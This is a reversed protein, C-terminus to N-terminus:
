AVQAWSSGAPGQIARELYFRDEDTLEGGYWSPSVHRAQYPYETRLAEYRFDTIGPRYLAFTTDILSHRAGPEILTGQIQPGTEWSRYRFDAPLDDLYLGFGVKPYPYRDLLHKFREVADLPCDEIPIIDPDTYIYPEDPARGSLWLARSGLNEGLRVVEHPSADLYEVSEPYTSDNDLITIREHGARELWAVLRKLVSARDRANIFVPPDFM